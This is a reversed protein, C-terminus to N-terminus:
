KAELNAQKLMYTIAAKLEPDTCDMCTGKPPMANLGNHATEMLSDMGKAAHPKWEETNGFKPAGAVGTAHCVHCKSQYIEEGTREANAVLPACLTIAAALILTKKM